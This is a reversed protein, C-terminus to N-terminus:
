HGDRQTGAATGRGDAKKHQTLMEQTTMRREAWGFEGGYKKRVMM